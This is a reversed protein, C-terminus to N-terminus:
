GLNSLWLKKTEMLNKKWLKRELTNKRLKREFTNKHEKKTHEKKTEKWINKITEKRSHEIKTEKWM